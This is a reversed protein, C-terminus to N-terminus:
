LSVIMWKPQQDLNATTYKREGVFRRVVYNQSSIFKAIEAYYDANIANLTSLLPQSMAEEIIPAEIKPLFPVFAAVGGLAILGKIFRRRDM